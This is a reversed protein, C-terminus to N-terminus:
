YISLLTEKQIVSIGDTEAESINLEGGPYIATDLQLHLLPLTETTYM